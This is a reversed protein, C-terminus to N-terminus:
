AQVTKRRKKNFYLINIINTKPTCSLSETNKYTM